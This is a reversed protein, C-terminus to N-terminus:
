RSNTAWPPWGTTSTPLPGREALGGGDSGRVVRGRRLGDEVDRPWRDQVGAPDRRRVCVARAGVRGGGPAVRPGAGAAVHRAAGADRRDGADGAGQPVGGFRAGGHGPRRLGRARLPRHGRPGGGRRVRRARPGVAPRRGAVRGGRGQGPRLPRRTAARCRGGARGGHGAGRVPDGLRGRRRPRRRRHRRRGAGGCVRLARRPDRGQRHRRRTRGGRPGLPVARGRGRRAFRLAMVALVSLGVSAFSYLGDFVIM